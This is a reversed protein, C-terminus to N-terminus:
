DLPIRSYIISSILLYFVPSQDPIASGDPHATQHDESLLRSGFVPKWSTGMIQTQTMKKKKKGNGFV